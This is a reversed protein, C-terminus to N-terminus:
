KCGLHRATADGDIADGWTEDFCRHGVNEILLLSFRDEAGNRETAEAGAGLNGRGRYVKCRILGSVDGALSQVNVTSHCHDSPTVLFDRAEEPAPTGAPLPMQLTNIVALTM